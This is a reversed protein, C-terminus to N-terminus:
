QVAVSRDNRQPIQRTCLINFYNWDPHRDVYSKLNAPNNEIAELESTKENVFGIEFGLWLLKKLLEDPSRDRGKM